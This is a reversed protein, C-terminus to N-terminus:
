FDSRFAVNAMLCFPTILNSLVLPLPRPTYRQCHGSSHLDNFPTPVAGKKKTVLPMSMSCGERACIQMATLRGSLDLPPM